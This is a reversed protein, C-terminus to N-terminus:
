PAIPFRRAAFLQPPDGLQAAIRPARPEIIMRRDSRNALPSALDYKAQLITPLNRQGIQRRRVGIEIEALPERFLARALHRTGLNAGGSSNDKMTVLPLQLEDIDAVHRPLNLQENTLQLHAVIPSQGLAKIQAIDDTDM